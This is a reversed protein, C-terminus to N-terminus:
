MIKKIESKRECTKNEKLFDYLFIWIDTNKSNMVSYTRQKSNISQYGTWNFRKKLQNKDISLSFPTKIRSSFTLTNDDTTLAHQQSAIRTRHKLTM